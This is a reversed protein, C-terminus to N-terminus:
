IISQTLNFLVLFHFRSMDKIYHGNFRQANVSCEVHPVDIISYKIVEELALTELNVDVYM